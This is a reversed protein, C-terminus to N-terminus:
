YFILTVLCLVFYFYISTSTSDQTLTMSLALLGFTFCTLALVVLIKSNYKQERSNKVEQYETEKNLDNFIMTIPNIAGSMSRNQSLRIDSDLELNIKELINELQDSKPVKM